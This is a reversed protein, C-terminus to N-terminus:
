SARRLPPPLDSAPLGSAPLGSAPLGSVPHESAPLGSVPHESAATGFSAEGGPATGSPARPELEDVLLELPSPMRLGYGQAYDIGMERLLRLTADDEVFEAITCHASRHPRAANISRVVERDLEDDVM